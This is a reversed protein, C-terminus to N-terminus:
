FSARGKRREGKKSYDGKGKNNVEWAAVAGKKRVDAGM